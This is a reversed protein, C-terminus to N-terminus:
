KKMQTQLASCPGVTACEQETRQAVIIYQMGEDTRAAEQGLKTEREREREGERERERREM